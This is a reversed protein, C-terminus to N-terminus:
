RSRSRGAPAATRTPVRAAARRFSASRIPDFRWDASAAANWGNWAVLMAVHVGVVPIQGVFRSIADSIRESLTAESSADRELAVITCVYEAVPQALPEGAGARGSM